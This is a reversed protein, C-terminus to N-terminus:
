KMSEWYENAFKGKTAEQWSPNDAKSTALHAKLFLPHVYLVILEQATGSCGCDNATLTIYKALSRALLYAITPITKDLTLSMLAM